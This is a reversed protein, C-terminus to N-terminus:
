TAVDVVDIAGGAFQEVTVGGDLLGATDQRDRALGASRGLARRTGLDVPGVGILEDASAQAAALSDRLGNSAM